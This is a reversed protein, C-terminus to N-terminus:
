FFDLPEDEEETCDLRYKRIEIEKPISETESEVVGGHNLHMSSTSNNRSSSESEILLEM